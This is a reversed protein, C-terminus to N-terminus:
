DLSCAPLNILPMRMLKALTIMGLMGSDLYYVRVLGRGGALTPVCKLKSVMSLGMRATTIPRPLPM